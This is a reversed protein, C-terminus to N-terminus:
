RLALQEEVEDPSTVPLKCTGNRCVYATARGDTTGRGELLPIAAITEDTVDDVLALVANPRWKSRLRGVLADRDRGVIVVEITGSTYLDIAGLLHGFGLPSREVLDRVLRVIEIAHTEYSREGTLAALRQLELALISNAAPVANDFLDKPRTVLTEADSGTTFFGGTVPDHFLRIAEDAARRAEAIWHLEGTVEWLQLCAELVAAYDESYGLHHVSGRRYSRMLRGDVRMTGLVFDMVEGAVTVWSREGLAAGAEALAAAALGNWATLVKDDTGPRVRTDRRAMLAARAREVREDAVEGALVPINAGEFNGGASFGFHEIAVAADDGLVDRVEKLTWVYFKGEHGESDADLSSWFGG